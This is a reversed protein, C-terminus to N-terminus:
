VDAACTPSFPCCTDDQANFRSLYEAMADHGDEEYVDLAVSLTDADFEALLHEKYTRRKWSFLMDLRVENADAVSWSLRETQRVSSHYSVNSYFNVDFYDSQIDSGNHNYASLM